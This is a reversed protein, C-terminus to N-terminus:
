EALYKPLLALALSDPEDARAVRHTAIDNLKMDYRPGLIRTEKKASRRISRAMNRLCKTAQEDRELLYGSAMVVADRCKREYFDWLAARKPAQSEVDYAVWEGGQWEGLTKRAAYEMHGLAARAQMLASQVEGSPDPHRLHMVEYIQVDPLYTIRACSENTIDIVRVIPDEMRHLTALVAPINPHREGFARYGVYYECYYRSM